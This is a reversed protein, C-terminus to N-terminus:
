EEVAVLRMNVFEYPGNDGRGKKLFGGLRCLQKIEDGQKGLKKRSSVEVTQASSYEDPAPLKVITVYGSTGSDSEWDRFREVRGAVVVHNVSVQQQAPMRAVNEGAM